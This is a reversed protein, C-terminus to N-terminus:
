IAGRFAEDTVDRQKPAKANSLDTAGTAEANWRNLIAVLYAVSYAGKGKAEDATECAAQLTEIPVGSQALEIVKPHGTNTMRLGHNRLVKVVEGVRSQEPTRGAERAHACAGVRAGERTGPRAFPPEIPPEIVTLTVGTDGTQARNTVRRHVGTDGTLPQERTDHTDDTPTVSIDGTPTDHTDGTEPKEIQKMAAIRDIRLRYHKTSGPAGGHPNGVVELLGEDVFESMLRQAQRRSIGCKAAVAAHSPHLSLGDDNCWDALALLALKQNGSGPYCDWVVTM